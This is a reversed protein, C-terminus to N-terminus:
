TFCDRRYLNMVERPKRYNRSYNRSLIVVSVTVKRALVLVVTEEDTLGETNPWGTVNVAATEGLLAVPVTVNLSPDVVSPVPVNDPPVAVRVGTLRAGPECEIM